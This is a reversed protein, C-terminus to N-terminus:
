HRARYNLYQRTIESSRGKPLPFKLGGELIVEDRNISVILNLNIVESYAAQIFGEAPLEILLEKMTKRQKMSYGNVLHVYLYNGSVEFYSISNWRIVATSGKDQYLYHDNNESVWYTYKRLAGTMDEKLHLKRVFYFTDLQFSGFVWNDHSSCFIIKSSPAHETIQRSLQFGSIGPMDIDLIFLQDSIHNVDYKLPDAYSTFVYNMHETNGICSISDEILKIDAPSDDIIATKIEM